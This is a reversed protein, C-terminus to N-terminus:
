SVASPPAPGRRVLAQGLALVVAAVGEPDDYQVVHGSTGIATAAPARAFRAVTEAWRQPVVRDRGGRVVLVPVALGPLLDEIRHALMERMEVRLVRPGARAFDLAAWLACSPPDFPLTRLVRVVQRSPTRAEPDSTPGVLVLGDVLEPRRAAVEAAIQCGMSHGVLLAGRLRSADMWGALAEGLQPITLPRADHDSSGHGPLDPAYVRVARALVAAVPVMYSSGIGFGHVLVVPASTPGADERLRAHMRLARMGALGPIMTWGTRLRQRHARYDRLERRLHRATRMAQWAALAIAATGLARAVGIPLRRQPM